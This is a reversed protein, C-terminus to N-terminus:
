GLSSDDWCGDFIVFGVRDGLPRGSGEAIANECNTHDLFTRSSHNEKSFAPVFPISVLSIRQCPPHMEIPGIRDTGSKGDYYEKFPRRVLAM